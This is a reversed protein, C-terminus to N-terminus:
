EGVETFGMRFYSAADPHEDSFEQQLKEVYYTLADNVDPAINFSSEVGPVLFLRRESPQTFEVFAVDRGIEGSILGGDTVEYAKALLEGLDYFLQDDGYSFAGKAESQVDYIIPRSSLPIRFADIGESRELPRGLLLGARRLQNRVVEKDADPAPYELTRVKSSPHTIVRDERALATDSFSYRSGTAREPGTMGNFRNIRPIEM